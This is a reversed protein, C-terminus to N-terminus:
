ALKTFLRMFCRLGEMGSNRFHVKGDKLISMDLTAFLPRLRFDSVFPM